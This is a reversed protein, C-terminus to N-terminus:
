PWANAIFEPFGEKAWSRGEIYEAMEKTIEVHSFDGEVFSDLLDIRLFVKKANVMKELDEKTVTYAQYSHLHGYGVNELLSTALLGKFKKIKGDVNISLSDGHSFARGNAVYVRMVGTKSASNKHLTVGMGIDSKINGKSMSHITEGTVESKSVSYKAHEPNIKPMVECSQLFSTLLFTIILKSSVAKM